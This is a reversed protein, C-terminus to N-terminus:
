GRDVGLAADLGCICPANVPLGRCEGVHDGHAAIWERARSLGVRLRAVEDELEARPVAGPPLLETVLGNIQYVAERLAAYKTDDAVTFPRRGDEDVLFRWLPADQVETIGVRRGDALVAM